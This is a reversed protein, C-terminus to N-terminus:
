SYFCKETHEPGRDGGLELSLFAWALHSQHPKNYTCRCRQKTQTAVRSNTMESVQECVVM